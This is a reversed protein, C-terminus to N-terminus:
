RVAYHRACHGRYFLVRAAHGRSEVGNACGNRPTRVGLCEHAGDGPDTGSCRCSLTRASVAGFTSFFPLAISLEDHHADMLSPNLSVSRMMSASSPDAM